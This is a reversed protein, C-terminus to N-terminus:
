GVEILAVARQEHLSRDAALAAALAARGDAGPVPSRTGDRAASVFAAWEDIYSQLYRELFFYALPPGTAGDV